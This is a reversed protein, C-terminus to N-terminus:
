IKSIYVYISQGSDYIEVFGNELMLKKNSSGKGYNTKFLQDFGRQRLLNDTIHQKTKINYWHKSPKGCDKLNFDLKNYVDGNFKSNDCYSIISSPHYIKIFYKFLREAGGVIKYDKHTCLRLLEYQYKRNYRPKGFTMIQVLKKNYYLGIRVEQNNCTGQLHYLNEFDNCEKVDVEKISLNRAYLINKDQKLINIIKDINDWDWIHICRYGNEKANLTKNYHYDKELPKKIHNRFNSGNTINHTYTPNIELLINSDLLKIDYSFKGLNFELKNKINNDNLKKSIRKNIKSIANFNAERCKKTMCAYPVGYKELCTQTMKSKTKDLSSCYEIGYKRLNTQKIKNKIAENKLVCPTGYNKINTERIRDKFDKVQGVYEKGYKKLNTNRTKEQIKESQTAYEFGYRKLNTKKIKEKIKESKLVCSTGYKEMSKKEKIDKIEKAQSINEVGYKELSKKKKKEKIEKLQSVNEVGYKKLNNQKVKEFWLKKGKKMGYKSLMKDIISKTSNFKNAIEIRSMNKNIYLDYLEEKKIELKSM